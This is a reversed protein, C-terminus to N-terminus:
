GDQDKLMFYRTTKNELWDLYMREDPTMLLYITSSFSRETEQYYLDKLKKDPYSVVFGEVKRLDVLPVPTDDVWNRFAYILGLVCLWLMFFLASFVKMWEWDFGWGGLIGILFVGLVVVGWHKKFMERVGIKRSVGIMVYGVLLWLMITMSISVKWDLILMGLVLILVGTFLGINLWKVTKM